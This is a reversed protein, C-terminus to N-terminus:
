REDFICQEDSFIGTPAHAERKDLAPAHAEREDSLPRRPPPLSPKLSLKVYVFEYGVNMLFENNM